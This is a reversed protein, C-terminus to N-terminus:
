SKYFLYWVYCSFQGNICPFRGLHMINLEKRPAFLCAGSGILAQGVSYIYLTCMPLSLLFNLTLICYSLTLFGTMWLYVSKSTETSLQQINCAEKLSLRIYFNWVPMYVHWNKGSTYFYLHPSIIQLSTLRIVMLCIGLAEAGNYRPSQISAFIVLFIVRMHFKALPSTLLIEHIEM